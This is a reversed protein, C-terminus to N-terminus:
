RRKKRKNKRNAEARAQERCALETKILEALDGDAGVATKKLTEFIRRDLYMSGFMRRSSSMTAQVRVLTHSM